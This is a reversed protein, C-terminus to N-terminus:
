TNFSPFIQDGVAFHHLRLGYYNRDQLNIRAYLDDHDEMEGALFADDVREVQLSLVDLISTFNGHDIVVEDYNYSLKFGSEMDDQETNLVNFTGAAFNDHNLLSMTGWLICYHKVFHSDSYAFLSWYHLEQLRIFAEEDIYEIFGHIQHTFSYLPGFIKAFGAVGYRDTYRFEVMPNKFIQRYWFDFHAKMTDEDEGYSLKWKFNNKVDNSYSNDDCRWPLVRANKLRDFMTGNLLVHVSFLSFMRCPFSITMDNLVHRAAIMQRIILFHRPISFDVPQAM